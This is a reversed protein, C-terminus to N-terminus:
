YVGLITKADKGHEALSSTWDSRGQGDDFLYKVVGGPVRDTMWWEIKGGGAASYVVHRAQFAGAPTDVKESGVTAGQVSEKTLEAPPTYIADGTVPIEGTEGDPDRARMRLVRGSEPDLLAEWLWTDEEDSWAVRWWEKGDDLKKLFAREMTVSDEGKAEWRFKTYEGPKYGAEGVWLGGASFAYTFAIQAQMTMAQNWAASGAAPGRSSAQPAPEPEPQAPAQSSSKGGGAGKVIEDVMMDQFMSCGGLALLALLGAGVLARLIKTHKM